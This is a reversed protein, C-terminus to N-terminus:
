LRGTPRARDLVPQYICLTATDVLQGGKGSAGAGTEISENYLDVMKQAQAIEKPSLALVDNALPIQNPHICWKGVAGLTASYTAQRMYTSTNRKAPSFRAVM